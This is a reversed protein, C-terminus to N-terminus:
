LHISNSNSARSAPLLELNPPLLPNWSGGLLWAQSRPQCVSLCVVAVAAAQAPVLEVMGM